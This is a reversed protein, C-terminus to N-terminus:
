EGGASTASANGGILTRIDFVHTKISATGANDKTITIYGDASPAYVVCAYSDPDSVNAVQTGTVAESATEPNTASFMANFLTGPSDDLAILYPKDAEVGYVDSYYDTGGLTWVGNAVYGTDVDSASPALPEPITQPAFAAAIQATAAAIDTLASIISEGQTHNMLKDTAM